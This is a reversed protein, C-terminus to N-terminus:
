ETSCIILVYVFVFQFFEKDIRQHKGFKSWEITFIYFRIIYIYIYTLTFAIRFVICAIDLTSFASLIFM